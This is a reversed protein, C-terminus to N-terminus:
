HAHVDTKTEQSISTFEADEKKCLHYAEYWTAEVFIELTSNLHVIYVFFIFSIIGFISFLIIKVGIITFLAIV